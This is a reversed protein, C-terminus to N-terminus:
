KFTDVVHTTEKNPYKLLQNKNKRFQFELTGSGYWFLELDIFPSMDDSIISVNKTKKRYPYAGM